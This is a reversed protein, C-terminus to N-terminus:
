LRIKENHSQCQVHKLVNVMDKIECNIRPSYKNSLDYSRVLCDKCLTMTKTTDNENIPSSTICDRLYDVKNINKQM